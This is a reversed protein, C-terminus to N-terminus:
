CGEGYRALADLPEKEFNVNQDRLCWRCTPLHDGKEFGRRLDVFSPHHWIEELSHSLLSGTPLEASLYSCPATEGTPGVYIELWPAPCTKAAAPPPGGIDFVPASLILGSRRARERAEAILRNALERHHFLQEERNEMGSYPVLHRCLVKEMGLRAAMDVFAPLEEINSRMLTFSGTVLPFRSGRGAKLDRVMEIKELLRDFDGRGRIREYTAGTAADISLVLHTIGADIIEAANKEGLLTGNTCIWTEPIRHERVTGLIAPLDPSLLPEFSCSLSLSSVSSFSNRAIAAFDGASMVQRPVRSMEEMSFYCISCKLNCRNTTDMRMVLFRRRPFRSPRFRGKFLIPKVGKWLSKLRGSRALLPMRSLHRVIAPDDQM